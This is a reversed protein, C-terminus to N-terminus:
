ANRFDECAFYKNGLLDLAFGSFPSCSGVSWESEMHKLNENVNM